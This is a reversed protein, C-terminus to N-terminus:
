PGRPRGGQPLRPHAAPPPHGGPRVAAAGGVPATGELGGDPAEQQGANWPQPYHNVLGVEQPGARWGRSNRIRSHYLLDTCRCYFYTLM